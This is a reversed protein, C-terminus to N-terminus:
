GAAPGHLLWDADLGPSNEEAWRGEGLSRAAAALVGPRRGRGRRGQGHGKKALLQNRSLGLDLPPLLDAPRTTKEEHLHM